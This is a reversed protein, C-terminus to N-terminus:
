HSIHLGLFVSCIFSEDGIRELLESEGVLAKPAAM